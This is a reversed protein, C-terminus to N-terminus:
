RVKPKRLNKQKLILIGDEWGTELYQSDSRAKIFMKRLKKADQIFQAADALIKDMKDLAEGTTIFYKSPDIPKLYDSVIVCCVGDNSEAEGLKPYKSSRKIPEKEDPM